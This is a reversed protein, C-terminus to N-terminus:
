TPLSIIPCIPPRNYAKLSLPFASVEGKFCALFPLKNSPKPIKTSFAVGIKVPIEGHNVKGVRPIAFKQLFTEQIEIPATLVFFMCFISWSFKPLNYVWILAEFVTADVKPIIVPILRSCKM